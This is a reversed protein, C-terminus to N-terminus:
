IAAMKKKGRPLTTTLTPKVMKKGRLKDIESRAITRLGRVRRVFRELDLAEERAESEASQRM